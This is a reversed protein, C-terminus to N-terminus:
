LVSKNAKPVLYAPMEERLAWVFSVPKSGSSKVYDVTGLFVFPSTYGNEKKYERVFLV